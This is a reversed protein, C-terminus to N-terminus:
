IESDLKAVSPKPVSQRKEGGRPPFKDAEGRGGSDGGDGNIGRQELRVARPDDALLDGKATPWFLEIAEGDRKEAIEVVIPM